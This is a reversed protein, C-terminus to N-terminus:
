HPFVATLGKDPLPPQRAGGPLGTSGRAQAACLPQDVSGEAERGQPEPSPPGACRHRRRGGTRVEARVAGRAGREGTAEQGRAKADVAGEAPSQGGGRDWRRPGAGAGQGATKRTWSVGDGKERGLGKSALLGAAFGARLKQATPAPGAGSGRQADSDRHLMGCHCGGRPHNHPSSLYQASDM